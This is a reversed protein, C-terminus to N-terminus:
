AHTQRIPPQPRQKSRRRTYRHWRDRMALYTLAVAATAISYWAATVAHKGAPPTELLHSTVPGYTALAIVALSAPAALAGGLDAYRSRDTGVAVAVALACWGTLQALLPHIAPAHCSVGHPTRPYLLLLQVWCTMVVVPAALITQGASATWAPVPTADVLPRFAARPVFALAAITPLITFRMTNQDVSTHTTDAVYRLLWLAATGTLCGALLTAWPTTRAAYRLLAPAARLWSWGPQHIPTTSTATM